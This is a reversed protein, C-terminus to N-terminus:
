ENENIYAELQDTNLWLSLENLIAESGKVDNAHKKKIYLGMLDKIENNFDEYVDM